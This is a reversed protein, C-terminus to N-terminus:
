LLIEDIGPDSPYVIGDSKCVIESEFSGGLINGLEASLRDEAPILTKLDM